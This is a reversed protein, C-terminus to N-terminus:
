RGTPMPGHGLVMRTGVVSIPREVIKTNYSSAATGFVSLARITSPQLPQYPISIRPDGNGKDSGDDVANVLGGILSSAFSVVVLAVVM